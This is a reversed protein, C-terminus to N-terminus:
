RTENQTPDDTLRAFWSDQLRGTAAEVLCNNSLRTFHPPYISHSKSGLAIRGWIRNENQMRGRGITTPPCWRKQKSRRRDWPVPATEDVFVFKSNIHDHSLYRWNSSPHIYNCESRRHGKQSIYTDFASRKSYENEWSTSSFERGKRDFSAGTDGLNLIPHQFFTLPQIWAGCEAWSLILIKSTKKVKRKKPIVSIQWM